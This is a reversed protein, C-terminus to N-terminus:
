MQYENQTQLTPGSGAIAGLKQYTRSLAEYARKQGELAVAKAYPHEVNPISDIFRLQTLESALFQMLDQGEPSALMNRVNTLDDTM